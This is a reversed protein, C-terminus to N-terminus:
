PAPGRPFSPEIRPPNPPALEALVGDSNLCSRPLHGHFARLRVFKNSGDLESTRLERIAAVTAHVMPLMATARETWEVALREDLEWLQEPVRVEVSAAKRLTTSDSVGDFLWQHWLNYLGAVNAEAKLCLSKVESNRM